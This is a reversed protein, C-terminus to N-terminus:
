LCSSAVCGAVPPPSFLVMLATSVRQARFKDVIGEQSVLKALRRSANDVGLEEANVTLGPKSNFL